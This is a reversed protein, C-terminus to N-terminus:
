DSTKEDIVGLLDRVEGLAKGLGEELTEVRESLANDVVVVSEDDTGDAEADVVEVTASDSDNDPAGSAAPAGGDGNKM